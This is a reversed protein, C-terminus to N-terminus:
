AAIDKPKKGEKLEIMAKSPPPIGGSQELKTGLETMKAEDDSTLSEGAFQKKRIANYDNTWMERDRWARYEELKMGKKRAKQKEEEEKEKSKEASKATMRGEQASAIWKGLKEEVVKRKETYRERSLKRILDVRSEDAEPQPPPLTSVSFPKSPIGDIMLRMYAHYKPLSLIDKPLVMEEFQMSLEEADDSGIQFSVISGVNGFIADRLTTNTNDILLQGVYQNAMTLNLRYKRAESLITAFSETAFNQFEDVYLYFDKRDKEPIDARSMADLQFKTVLMSGLFASEDEGLTGKSLNALIIKGSDMAHRIDLKSVVQGIINRLLPNGLLQGIKNQIAAIAETRYKESWTDYEGKWFEKVLHDNISELVKERFKTDTFMRTIGLMSNGQSEILALLTNRLIHEM